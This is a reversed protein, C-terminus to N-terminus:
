TERSVNGGDNRRLCHLQSRELPHAEVVRLDAGPDPLGGFVLLEGGPELLRGAISLDLGVARVTVTSARGAFDECRSRSVEVDSRDLRRTAERLFAWRRARPELLTVKLDRRVLALVLGPSGNGSGIDILSGARVFPAAKWADAVLIEVREVATRAATLNTRQNWVAVLALYESLSEALDRAMGRELLPELHEDAAGRGGIV